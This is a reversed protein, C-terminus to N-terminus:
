KKPWMHVEQGNKAQNHAVDLVLGSMQSIIYGDPTWMRPIIMLWVRLAYAGICVVSLRALLFRSSSLLSSILCVFSLLPSCLYLTCVRCNEVCRVM